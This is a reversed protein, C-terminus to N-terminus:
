PSLPQTSTDACRNTNPFAAANIFDFVLQSSCNSTLLNSHGANGIKALMASKFRSAARRGENLTTRLDLEGQTILVPVNKTDIPERLKPALKRFLVEPSLPPWGICLVEISRGSFFETPSFPLFGKPDITQWKRLTKSLQTASNDYPGWPLDAELCNVSFFLAGSFLSPDTVSETSENGRDRILQNLPIYDGSRAEKLARSMNRALNLDFLAGVLDCPRLVATEDKRLKEVVFGLNKLTQEAECQSSRDCVAALTRKFEMFLRSDAGDSDGPVFASDLTFTRGRKPFFAAYDTVVSTGYSVGIMNYRGVSLKQRLLEYDRAINATNYHIRRAGIERACLGAGLGDETINKPCATEPIDSMKSMTMTMNSCSIRDSLGSGRADLFVLPQKLRPLFDGFTSNFIIPIVGSSSQGPGGPLITLAQDKPEDFKAGIVTFWLSIKEGYPRHYDLPVQFKGCQVNDSQLLLPCQVLTIERSDKTPKSCASACLLSFVLTASFLNALTM